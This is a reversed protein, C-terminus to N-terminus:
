LEIVLCTHNLRRWIPPPQWIKFNLAVLIAIEMNIFEQRTYAKDTVYVLDSIQPPRVEEFKAAILLTTMRVLQLNRPAATKKELYRDHLSGALLLTEERLQWKRQVGRMQADVQM